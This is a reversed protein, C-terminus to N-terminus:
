VPIKFLDVAAGNQVNELVPGGAVVKPPIPKYADWRARWQKMADAESSNPDMGVGLLSRRQTSCVNVAIRYNPPYGEIQDFVLAPGSKEFAVESIAGIEYKLGAHSIRKLDGLSELRDLFQRLDFIM